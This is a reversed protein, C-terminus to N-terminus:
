LNRCLTSRATNLVEAIETMSVGDGKMKTAQRKKGPTLSSSAVDRAWEGVNSSGRTASAGDGGRDTGPDFLVYSAIDDFLM